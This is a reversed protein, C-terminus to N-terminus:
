PEICNTEGPYVAVIAVGRTASNQPGCNVKLKGTASTVAVGTDFQAFSLDRLNVGNEDNNSIITGSGLYAVSASQLDIGHGHNGTITIAANGLNTRLVSNEQVRVGSSGNGQIIAGLVTVAGGFRVSLGLGGNNQIVTNPGILVNPARVQLAPGSAVHEITTNEIKGASGLGYISGSGSDQFTDNVFNCTAFPGCVFGQGGGTFTLNQVLIRGSDSIAIMPDNGGSDDNVTASPNGLLTLHDANQIVLNEVCAGSVHITNDGRPLHSLAATISKIRARPDSCNVFLDAAQAVMSFLFLGLLVFFTFLNWCNDAKSTM